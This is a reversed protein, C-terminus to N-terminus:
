IEWDREKGIPHDMFFRSLKVSELLYKDRLRVAEAAGEETYDRFGTGSKVGLEGRDAMDTIVNHEAPVGFPVFSRNQLGHAVMDVGNFDMRQVVGLLLGRPMLSTKVARDLMEPTCYGEQLLGVVERTMASQLRNLIFGPIYKEMRVPTKGCAEHLKMMAEMTDEDTRPGKVVEVLPLIHPPAVWHVIVLKEQREEPMFEFINMYSTNSSIIVDHPLLEDLERYVQKKTEPIEVVTEVVYFAGEVADPLSTTFAIREPVTDLDADEYLGEERFLEAINRITDQAKLLTKETRSYLSVQYGGIAYVAAIGAGMTGAGLVAIKGKDMAMM